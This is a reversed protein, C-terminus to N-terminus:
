FQLYNFRKKFHKYIRLVTAPRVDKRPVTGGKRDRIIGSKKWLALFINCFQWFFM